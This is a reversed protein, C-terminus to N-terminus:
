IRADSSLTHFVLFNATAFAVALKYNIRNNIIKRVVFFAGLGVAVCM